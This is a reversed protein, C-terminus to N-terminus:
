RPDPDVAAGLAEIQSDRDQIFTASLPDGAEIARDVDV